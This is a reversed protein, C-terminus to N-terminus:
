TPRQRAPGPLPVSRTKKRRNRTLLTYSFSPCSDAREARRYICYNEVVSLRSGHVSRSTGLGLPTGKRKPFRAPSPLGVWVSRRVPSGRSFASEVGSCRHRVQEVPGGGLRRGRAPLQLALPLLRRPAAHRRRSRPTATRGAAWGNPALCNCCSCKVAAVARLLEPSTRRALALSRWAVSTPSTSAALAAARPTPGIEARRSTTCRPRRRRPPLAPRSRIRLPPAGGDVTPAPVLLPKSHMLTMM